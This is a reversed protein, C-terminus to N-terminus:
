SGNNGTGAGKDGCAPVKRHELGIPNRMNAEKQERYERSQIFPLVMLFIELYNLELGAYEARTAYLQHYAQKADKDEPVEKCHQRLEAVMTNTAECITISHPLGAAEELWDAMWDAWIRSTRVVKRFHRAGRVAEARNLNEVWRGTIYRWLEATSM